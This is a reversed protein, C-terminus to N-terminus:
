SVKSIVDKPNPIGHYFQCDINKCDTKTLFYSCYKTMGFNAKFINGKQEFNQIALLAISAEIDQKYSVYVSASLNKIKNKGHTKDFNLTLKDITGYQGFYEYKTLLDHNALDNPINIVYIMNRKIIREEHDIPAVSHKSPIQSKIM